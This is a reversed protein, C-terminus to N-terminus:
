PELRVLSHERVLWAGGAAPIWGLAAGEGAELVASRALGAGADLAVIRNGAAVLVGRGSRLAHPRTSLACPIDASAASGDAAVVRVRAADVRVLGLGGGLPALLGTWTGSAPEGDHRRPEDTERPAWLVDDLVALRERPAGSAPGAALRWGTSLDCVDLGLLEGTGLPVLWRTGLFLPPPAPAADLPQVDNAGRGAAREVAGEGLKRAARLRGDALDFACLWTETRTEDVAGGRWARVLDLVLGGAVQPAGGHELIAGALEAPWSDLEGSLRRVGQPLARWAARAGGGADLELAVLANGHAGRARGVACVLRREDGACAALGRASRVGGAPLAAEDLADAVHEGLARTRVSWAGDAARRAVLLMDGHQACLLGDAPAVGGADQHQAGGSEAALVLTARWAPAAAGTDFTKSLLGSRARLAGEEAGHAAARELWGRAQPLDGREACLDALRLAAQAAAATRPHLRGVEALASEDAGAAALRATAPLGARERWLARAEAPWADLRLGVAADAALARGRAAEVEGGAECVALLLDAARAADGRASAADAQALLPGRSPQQAAALCPPVCAATLLIQRIARPLRQLM